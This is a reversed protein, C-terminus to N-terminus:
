VSLILYSVVGGVIASASICSLRMYYNKIDSKFYRCAIAVCKHAPSLLYGAYEISYFLVVNPLLTHENSLLMVIPMGITAMRSSSGFVFGILFAFPLSYLFYSADINFEYTSRIVSTAIVILAVVTPLWWDIKFMKVTFSKAYICLSLLMGTLSVWMADKFTGMSILGILFIFPVPLLDSTFKRKVAYVDDVWESEMRSIIFIGCGLVAILVPILGGVLAGYSLGTITLTTLISKELPSHLYYHHSSWMDIFALDNNKIKM